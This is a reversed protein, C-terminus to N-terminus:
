CPSLLETSTFCSATAAAERGHSAEALEDGGAGVETGSGGVDRVRTDHEGKDREGTLVRLLEQLTNDM